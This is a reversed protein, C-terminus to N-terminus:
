NSKKTKIEHLFWGIIAGFGTQVLSMLNDMLEVQYSTANETKALIFAFVTFTLILAIILFLAQTKM